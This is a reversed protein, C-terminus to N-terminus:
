NNLRIKLDFLTTGPLVAGCLLLLVAAMAAPAIAPRQGGAAGAGGQRLQNECQRMCACIPCDAGSCQHRVERALYVTCLLATFLLAAALLFAAPRQRGTKTTNQCM